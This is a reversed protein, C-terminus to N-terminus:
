TFPLVRLDTHVTVPDIGTGEWLKVRGKWERPPTPLILFPVSPRRAQSYVAFNSEHLLKYDDM